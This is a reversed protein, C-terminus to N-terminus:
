QAVDESELMDRRPFLLHARSEIGEDGRVRIQGTELDHKQTSQVGEDKVAALDFLTVKDISGECPEMGAANLAQECIGLDILNQHERSCQNPIGSEQFRTISDSFTTIFSKVNRM